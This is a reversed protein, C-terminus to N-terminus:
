KQLKQHRQMPQTFTDLAKEFCHTLYDKVHWLEQLPKQMHLTIQPKVTVSSIAQFLSYASYATSGWSRCRCIKTGGKFVTVVNPHKSPKWITSDDSTFHRPWSNGINNRDMLIRANRLGLPCHSRGLGWNCSWKPDGHSGLNSEKAPSWKALHTRLLSLATSDAKYIWSTHWGHTYTRDQYIIDACNCLVDCYLKADFHGLMKCPGIACLCQSIRSSATCPSFEQCRTRRGLLNKGTHLRHLTTCPPLATDSYRLSKRIKPQADRQIDRWFNGDESNYM